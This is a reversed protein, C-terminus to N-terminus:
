DKNYPSRKFEKRALEAMAHVDDFFDVLTESIFDTTEKKIKMETENAPQPLLMAVIISIRNIADDREM